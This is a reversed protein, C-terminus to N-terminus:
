RHKQKRCILLTWLRACESKAGEKACQCDLPPPMPWLIAVTQDRRILMSCPPRTSRFYPPSALSYGFCSSPAITQPGLRHLWKIPQLLLGANMPCSSAAGAVGSATQVSHWMGPPHRQGGYTCRAGTKRMLVRVYFVHSKEPVVRDVVLHHRAHIERHANTRRAGEFVGNSM